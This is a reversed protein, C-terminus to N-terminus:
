CPAPVQHTPQRQQAPQQQQQQQQQAPQQQQQQKNTQPTTRSNRFNGSVNQSGPYGDNLPAATNPDKNAQNAPLNRNRARYKRTVRVRQIGAANEFEILKDLLGLVTLVQVLGTEPEAPNERLILRSQDQHGPNMMSIAWEIWMDEAPSPKGYRESVRKVNQKEMTVKNKIASASHLLRRPIGGGAPNAPSTTPTASTTTTTATSITQPYEGGITAEPYDVGGPCIGADTVPATQNSQPTQGDVWPGAIAKLINEWLDSNPFFVKYMGDRVDEYTAKPQANCMEVWKRLYEDRLYRRTLHIKYEPLVGVILFREELKSFFIDWDRENRPNFVLPGELKMLNVYCDLMKLQVLEAQRRMYISSLREEDGPAADASDKQHGDMNYSPTMTAPTSSLGSTM